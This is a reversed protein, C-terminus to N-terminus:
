FSMNLRAAVANEKYDEGSLNSNREQHRVEVSGSVKPRFKRNVVLALNWLGDDRSSTDDGQNKSLGGTLTFTTHAAPRLSWSAQLGRTRDSTGSTLYDRRNDFLSLNWTNRRLTYSVTGVVSKSVYTEDSQTQFYVPICAPDPPLTGEPCLYGAFNAFQRRSDTLEDQYRLSWNSMRTRHSLNLAYSRGFARRSSSATVATRPTPSLTVKGSLFNGDNSHNYLADASFRRSPTYFVGFGYYNFDRALSSVNDYDNKEKGAQALLGFKRSLQYRANLSLRESSNDSASDNNTDSRTYSANWSLPHMDPGSVVSLLYRIGSSDSVSSDEIFLGDRTIRAEVTAKSGFRHRLYPSLTYAGVTTTNGIGVGDGLGTKSSINIPQQGVRTTADLYFWDELLEANARGNLNHRVTNSQSDNAFLLGQLSYDVDVKM